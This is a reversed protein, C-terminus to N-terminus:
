QMKFVPEPEWFAGEERFEEDEHFRAPMATSPRPEMRTKTKKPM